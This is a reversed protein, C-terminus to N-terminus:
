MFDDDDSQYGDSCFGDFRDYDDNGYNNGYDNFYNDDYDDGDYLLGNEYDDIRSEMEDLEDRMEEVRDSLEDYEPSSPDMEDLRADLEDIRDTLDDYNDYEGNILSAAYEPDYDRERRSTYSERGSRYDSERRGFLKKFLWYFGLYKWFSM